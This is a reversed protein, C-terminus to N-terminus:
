LKYGSKQKIGYIDGKRLKPLLFLAKRKLKM